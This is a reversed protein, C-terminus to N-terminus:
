SAAPASSPYFDPEPDLGHRREALLGDGSWRIDPRLRDGRQPDLRRHDAPKPHGYHRQLDDPHRLATVNGTGLNLPASGGFNVDQQIVIANNNTLTTATGYNANITVYPAATGVDGLWVTGTGFATNNNINLTGAGNNGGKYYYGGSYTNNATSYGNPANQSSGLTISGTSLQVITLPGGGSNTITGGLVGGTGGNDVDM